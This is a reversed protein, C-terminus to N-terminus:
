PNNIARRSSGPPMISPKGPLGRSGKAQFDFNRFRAINVLVSGEPLNKRVDELEIWAETNVTQSSAKALERSVAEEVRALKALEAQHPKQKDVRPM